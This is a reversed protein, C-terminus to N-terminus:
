RARCSARASSTRRLVIQALSRFGPTGVTDILDPRVVEAGTIIRDALVPANSISAVEKWARSAPPADLIGGHGAGDGRRHTEVQGGKVTFFSTESNICGAPCDGWAKRMIVHWAGRRKGAVIDPGDGLRVDLSARVVGAIASYAARAARLNAREAFHLIVTGFSPIAKARRLGLRANLDDFAAHGTPPVAGAGLDTWREAINELLDGEIKLLLAARRHRHRAAIEKMAPYRNRIRRLVREIERGLADLRRDDRLLDHNERQHIRRALSPRMERFWPKGTPPM